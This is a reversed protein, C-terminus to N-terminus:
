MVRLVVKLTLSTFIPSNQIDLRNLVDVNIIIAKNHVCTSLRSELLLLNLIDDLLLLLGLFAELEPLLKTPQASTTKPLAAAGRLTPSPDFLIPRESVM